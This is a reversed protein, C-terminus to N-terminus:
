RLIVLKEFKTPVWEGDIRAYARYFYTGNALYEGYNNDTHWELDQGEVQQEFVLTEYQDFIQIRIAEVGMGRVTFTTTHVDQVPNPFNMVSLEDASSRRVGTNSMYSSEPAIPGGEDAFCIQINDIMWGFYNNYWADVSDFVFRVWMTTAGPEVAFAIGHNGVEHEWEEDSNADSSDKYWVTHWTTATNFRVQVKTQDYGSSFQEVKRCSDFSLEIYQADGIDLGAPDDVLSLL